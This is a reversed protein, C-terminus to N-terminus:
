TDMREAPAYFFVNAIATAALWLAQMENVQEALRAQRARLLPLYMRERVEGERMVIQRARMATIGFERGLAAYTWGKKRLAVLRQNRSAPMNAGQPKDANAPHHQWCFGDRWAAGGCRDYPDDRHYVRWYASRTTVNSSCQMGGDEWLGARGAMLGTSVTLIEM